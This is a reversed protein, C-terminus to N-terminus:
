LVSKAVPAVSYIAALLSSLGNSIWHGYANPIPPGDVVQRPEVHGHTKAFFLYRPVASHQVGLDKIKEDACIEQPM